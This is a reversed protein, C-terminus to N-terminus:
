AAAARLQENRATMALVRGTMWDEQPKVTRRWRRVGDADVGAGIENGAWRRAEAPVIPVLLAMEIIAADMAEATALRWIGCITEWGDLVWDPRAVIATIEEPAHRWRHMLPWIEDTLCQAEAITVRGFRLTLESGERLLNAAIRLDGDARNGREGVAVGLAVVDAALRPLRARTPDGPMGCGEFVAALEELAEVAAGPPLSGASRLRKLVAHARLQINTPTDREPPLGTGGEGQRVLALLLQYHVLTRGQRAANAADTAARAAARGALGRAAIEQAAARITAPTLMPLQAVKSWLARDHLTPACVDPLGAWPLVYVGDGGGPNSLILEAAQREAPRVRAGLLMPTTFPLSIGRELYTAPEFRGTAYQELPIAM